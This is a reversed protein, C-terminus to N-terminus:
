FLANTGIVFFLTCFLFSALGFGNYFFQHAIVAGLNGMLNSTKVGESPWLISIGRFVKDQDVKWTFLYSAFAILLFLGCLLSIVGMIKHTREDKALERVSVKEEKEQRLKSKESPQSKKSSKARNAMNAFILLKPLRLYFTKRM